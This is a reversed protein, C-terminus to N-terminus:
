AYMPRQENLRLFGKVVRYIFWIGSVGLVLVGLVIPIPLIQRFQWTTFYGAFVLMWGIAAWVLGIWFTRIQWRFHSELWTDSVDGKKAHAVVVGVISTVGVLLSAAYLAYVMTAVRQMNESRENMTVVAEM